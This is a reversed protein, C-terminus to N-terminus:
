PTAFAWSTPPSSPCARDLDGLPLGAWGISSGGMALAAADWAALWVHDPWCTYFFQKLTRQEGGCSVLFSRTVYQRHPVTALHTVTVDGYQLQASPPNSTPDPWYRHCKMKGNEVEHTVM